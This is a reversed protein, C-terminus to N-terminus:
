QCRGSCAMNSYNLELLSSRPWPLGPRRFLMTLRAPTPAKMTSWTRGNWHMEIATGEFVSFFDQAAGKGRPYRVTSM